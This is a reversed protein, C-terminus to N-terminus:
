SIDINQKLLNNWRETISDVNCTDLIHKANSALYEKHDQNSILQLIAQAMASVDQVPTLLGNVGHKILMRPGGAPCDTSIVPFGMAMAEMLSNPLGEFDSSIVYIDSNKISEHVNSSFGEFIVRKEIGLSTALQKLESEKKGQGFIRLQYDNNNRCVIEFAKLLLPYNKQSALRGISVIEKNHVCTRVPLGERIPNPIVVSRQQINKSYFRKAETTQFVYANAFRFFLWRLIKTMNSLHDQKPANRESMIVPIRFGLFKMLGMTINPLIGIAILIDTKHKYAYRKIKIGTKLINPTTEICIRNVYPAVEYENPEALGTLLTVENGCNALSRSIVTAFRESGGGSIKPTYILIRM